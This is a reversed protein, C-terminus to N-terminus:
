LRAQIYRPVMLIFFLFDCVLVLELRSLRICDLDLGLEITADFECGMLTHSIVDDGDEGDESGRRECGSRFSRLFM